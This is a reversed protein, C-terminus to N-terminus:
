DASRKGTGGCRTCQTPGGDVYIRTTGLCMTCYQSVARANESRIAADVSRDLKTEPYKAM